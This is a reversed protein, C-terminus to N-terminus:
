VNLSKIRLGSRAFSGSMGQRKQAASKAGTQKAGRVGLISERTNPNMTAQLTNQMKSLNDTYSKQQDAMTKQVASMQDSFRSTLSDIMEQNRKEQLEMQKKLRQDAEYQGFFQQAVPGFSPGANRIQEVTMGDDRARNVSTLGAQNTSHNGGYRGIFTNQLRGLEAAAKPGFNVGYRLIEGASLGANLARQLSGMGSQNTEAIGGFRRIFENAM